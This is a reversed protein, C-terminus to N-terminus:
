KEVKVLRSCNVTPLGYTHMHDANVMSNLVGQAVHWAQEESWPMTTVNKDKQEEDVIVTIEVYTAFTVRGTM